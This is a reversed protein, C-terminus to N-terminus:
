SLKKDSEESKSGNGTDSQEESSLLDNLDDKTIQGSKYLEKIADKPHVGAAAALTVINTVKDMRQLRKIEEETVEEEETMIKLNNKQAFKLLLLGITMTHILAFRLTPNSLYLISM